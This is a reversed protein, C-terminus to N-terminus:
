ASKALAKQVTEAWGAVRRQTLETVRVALLADANTINEYPGAKAEYLRKEAQLDYGAQRYTTWFQEFKFSHQFGEIIVICAGIIGNIAPKSAAPDALALIPLSGALTIQIAKLCLTFLRAQSAKKHCRQGQNDIWNLLAGSSESGHAPNM